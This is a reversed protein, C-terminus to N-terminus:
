NLLRSEIKQKYQLFHVTHAQSLSAVGLIHPPVDIENIHFPYDDHGSRFALIHKRVDTFLKDNSSSSFKHDNCFIVIPNRRNPTTKATIRINLAMLSLRPKVKIAQCSVVGASNKHIEFFRIYIDNPVKAQDVLGHLFAAYNSLIQEPKTNVHQRTFLAAKEDIIYLAVHKKGVHYFVQITNAKIQGYLYPIYTDSLVHDDFHVPAFHQQTASLEQLLLDNSELRCLTLQQDRRTFVLYGNQAPLIYRWNSQPHNFLKLLRNFITQIRLVISKARLPTHCVLQLSDATLPAETNNFIESLCHFFGEIGQYKATTVEGWTSLSVRDIRQVFCQRNEGYSLPDSRHSMIVQDDDRREQLTEGLNIFLLSARLRNPHNYVALSDASSHQITSFFEQLRKLIQLTEAENVNLNNSQLHIKLKTQYLGNIVVWSLIELLSEGETVASAAAVKNREVYGCYLRWLPEAHEQDIEIVSLLEEKKHISACTTIIEIKGPKYELFAHLKRGILKLDNNDHYNGQAHQGAFRLIMRLCQKLQDRIIAHEHKAKNIDWYRHKSFKELMDGPWRWQEAINQLYHERLARSRPDLSKPSSGIIKLYFCQRSLALRKRSAVLHLYDEVKEYILLYPDLKDIDFQGQYIARKLSWSIWQPHPYESAYCEMLFLKLLSKYPSALSKYIHWLTASIFEEAPVAQLSGFDIVEHASIFRNELLHNVYGTYNHEQHPPVAWWAPVKGALYIATRYFEELLLYHQTKGSSETSIPANEGRRFQESNILFFHAEINLSQAWKEVAIAKQQLEEIATSDLKSSHCLWIDMDSTKSFAISGVSGMLFIGEIPYDRLAKRTYRFSKSFQKAAQLSTKNPAYDPIGAPTETSIFGPLLPLNQHFILPLLHLFNRQRPQLFNQVNLLRYQNLNKFRQIIAHLDKTSIDEGPSGLTIPLYNKKM